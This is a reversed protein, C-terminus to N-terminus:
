CAAAMLALCVALVQGFCFMDVALRQENGIGLGSCGDFKRGTSLQLKGSCVRGFSM